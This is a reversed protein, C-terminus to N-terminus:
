WSWTRAVPLCVSTVQTTTLPENEPSLTYGEEIGMTRLERASVWNHRAVAVVPRMAQEALEAVLPVLAGGKTGFELQDYGTVVLDAQAITGALGAFEACWAPGTAVRGGTLLAVFGLGGQAGSGAVTALEPRGCAAALDVLAQDQALMEAPDAGHAHGHAATIGRMGTLHGAEGQPSVVLHLLRGALRARVPALDIQTIGALDDVGRDLPVDAVAGLAALMGAGGDRWDAGVIDVWVERVEPACGDLADGVAQGVMTSAERGSLDPCTVLLHDSAGSTLAAFAPAFDTGAEAMPVVAVEAGFSAWARAIAVGTAEPGLGEYPGCAVVVRM